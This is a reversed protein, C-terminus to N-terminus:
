VASRGNRKNNRYAGTLPRSSRNHNRRSSQYRQGFVRQSQSPSLGVSAIRERDDCGHEWQRSAFFSCRPGFLSSASVQSWLWSPRLWAPHVVDATRSVHLASASISLHRQQIYRGGRNPEPSCSLSQPRCASRSFHGVSESPWDTVHIDGHGLHSRQSTGATDSPKRHCTPREEFCAGVVALM